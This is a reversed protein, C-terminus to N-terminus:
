LSLNGKEEEQKQEDQPLPFEVIAKFLDGDTEIRFNGQMAETFSKVIALGLGSGGDHRSKDGRVFRDVIEDTDFTLAENSINKCEIVAWADRRHVDVYVRTNTMAYHVVNIFLNEFIRYAKSGDLLVNLMHEGHTNWIVELHAEELQDSCEAQVQKILAIIDLSVMDLQINGSNAKSVEFLDELLVHLRKTYQDLMHIYEKQQAEEVGDQQLLEVYNRIGTLPTKLDHSVNSILETKLNQSKMKEQVAKEWGVGIEKLEEELEQFVGVHVYEEQFIGEKLEATQQLLAAYDKQIKQLKKQLWICLAIGYPIALLMGFWWFLCLVMVIGIQLLVFKVLHQDADRRLRFDALCDMYRHLSCLLSGILTDEKMFSWFGKVFIYKIEFLAVSILLFLLMWCIVNVIFLLQQPMMISYDELVQLLQHSMTVGSLIFIGFVGMTIGVGLLLILIGAKINRFSKYPNVEQVVSIPNFLMYLALLAVGILLAIVSFLTYNEWNYVIHAIRGDNQEVTNPIRFRIYLQKPNELAAQSVNMYQDEFVYSANNEEDVYVPLEDLIGYLRQTRFDFPGFDGSVEVNGEKDYQIIGYALSDEELKEQSMEGLHPDGFEKDSALDKVYYQFNSDKELQLFGQESIQRFSNHLKKQVDDSLDSDLRLIEDKPRVNQVAGLVFRQIDNEMYFVINQKAAHTLNQAAGNEYFNCITVSMALLLLFLSALFIHKKKM